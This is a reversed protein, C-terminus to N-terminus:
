TRLPIFQQISLNYNLKMSSKSIAISGFVRFNNVNREEKIWPEGWVFDSRLELQRGPTPVAEGPCQCNVDPTDASTCEWALVLSHSTPIRHSERIHDTQVLFLGEGRGIYQQFSLILSSQIREMVEFFFTKIFVLFYFLFCCFSSNRVIWNRQKKSNKQWPQWPQMPNNHGDMWGNMCGDM